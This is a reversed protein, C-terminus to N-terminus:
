LNPIDMELLRNKISANTNIISVKNVVERSNLDGERKEDWEYQIYVMRGDALSHWSTESTYGMSFEYYDGYPDLTKVDTLTSQGVTLTLFDEEYLAKGSYWSGCLTLQDGTQGYLIYLLGGEDTRMISYYCGTGKRLCEIPKMEEIKLIDGTSFFGGDLPKDSPYVSRILESYPTTNDVRQLLAKTNENLASEDIILNLEEWSKIDDIYEFGEKVTTTPTLTQTSQYASRTCSSLFCMIFVVKVILNIIRSM